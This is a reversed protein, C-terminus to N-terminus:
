SSADVTPMNAEAWEKLASLAPQLTHGLPTLAYHVAPPSTPEVRRSVLRDAELQRLSQTLMKQSIGRATRRLEGFRMEGGSDALTLVIMVVWKSGVRDLLSRTPCAADFLDGRRETVERHGPTASTGEQPAM